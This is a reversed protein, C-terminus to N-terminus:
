HARVCTGAPSFVADFFFFQSDPQCQACISLFFKASLAILVYEEASKVQMRMIEIKQEARGLRALADAAGGGDSDTGLPDFAATSPPPHPPRPTSAAVTVTSNISSVLADASGGGKQEAEASSLAALQKQLKSAHEKYKVVRENLTQIQAGLQVNENRLKKAAEESAALSPNASASSSSSGSSAPPPPTETTANKEGRKLQRIQKEHVAKLHDIKKQWYAASGGGGGGGSSSSSSSSTTPVKGVTGNHSAAAQRSLPKNAGRVRGSVNAIQEEYGAKM